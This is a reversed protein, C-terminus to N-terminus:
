LLMPRYALECLWAPALNAEPDLSVKYQQTKWNHLTTSDM